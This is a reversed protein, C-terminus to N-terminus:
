VRISLRSVFTLWLYSTNNTDDRIQMKALQIYFLRKTEESLLASNSCASACNLRVPFPLAADLLHLGSAAANVFYVWHTDSCDPYLALDTGQCNNVGSAEERNLPNASNFRSSSITSRVCLIETVASWSLIEPQIEVVFPKEAMQRPIVM